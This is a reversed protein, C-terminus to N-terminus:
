QTFRRAYSRSRELHQAEREASTVFRTEPPLAQRLASLKVVRVDRVARTPDANAPLSQWRAAVIGGSFGEPDLWNYVGPDRASIAFTYTGGSNPKAQVNNLSSTRDVYEYAVGWPDTLQIGLSRAGLPDLTIVLAEDDALQFHGGASMGRGVGRVRPESVINVPKSFIFQNDYKVWYPAIQSLIKVARATLEAETRPPTVPPPGLRRVELSVPNQTAWDTFLDRVTMHLGDQPPLQIHNRRGNAPDKDLTITFAGDAAITLQDSRLGALLNGGENTMPGTGPLGARLDFHEEAPGPSKVKGRIEYRANGDFTILRYVNDPNDIGYGSRPVDLGAWRHPANCCWFAAPRSSDEGVAYNVAALTIAKAAREITARGALTSGQADAAYLAEVKRLEQQMPSSSLIRLALREREIQVTTELASTWVRRPAAWSVGHAVSTAVACALAVTLPKITTRM